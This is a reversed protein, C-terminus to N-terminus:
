ADDVDAVSHGDGELNFRVIVGAEDLGELACGRAHAPNQAVDERHARARDGNQISQTKAPEVVRLGARAVPANELARNGANRVVAVAETYGGDAAFAHKFSRIVAVREHVHESQPDETM